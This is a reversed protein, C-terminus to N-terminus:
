ENQNGTWDFEVSQQGNLLLKVAEAIPLKKYLVEYAVFLISTKIKLKQALKYASEATTIGEVIGGLDQLILHKDEGKAMRFGFQRNRSLEGTCTLILDGLGSLGMFTIPNAGMAAGVEAIESLGRTMVAARANNGLNLGDVAGTVMAIVNKLAGAIEVGLVDTSDYIRFYTSHLIASAKKLLKNDKSALVVCTPLNEVMEKAFSPGSLAAISVSDNQFVEELIQHPLLMTKKELGKATSVINVHMECKKAAKQKSTAEIQTKRRKEMQKKLWLASERLSQSPVAFLIFDYQAIDEDFSLCKERTLLSVFNNPKSLICSALAKGYAGAGVILVHHSAKIKRM